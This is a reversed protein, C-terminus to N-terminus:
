EAEKSSSSSSSSASAPADTKSADTTKTEVPKESSNEKPTETATSAASPQNKTKFDTAYWGTGKLQFSSASVLKALTSKQCVPCEKLPEENIGQFAEMTHGCANCQYEYIPM